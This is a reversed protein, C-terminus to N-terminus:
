TPAANVATSALMMASARFSVAIRLTRKAIRLGRFNQVRQAFHHPRPDLRFNPRRDFPDFLLLAILERSAVAGRCVRDLSPSCMAATIRPGAVFGCRFWVEKPSRRNRM